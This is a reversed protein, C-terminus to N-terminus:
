EGKILRKLEIAANEMATGRSGKILIVDGEALSHYLHEALERHSACCIVSEAPVGNLIANEAAYTTMLKGTLYLRDVNRGAVAGVGMHAEAEHEGLELM